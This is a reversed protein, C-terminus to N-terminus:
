GVLGSFYELSDQGSFFGLGHYGNFFWYVNLGCTRWVLWDNLIVYNM